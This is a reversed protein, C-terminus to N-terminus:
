STGRSLGLGQRDEKRAAARDADDFESREIELDLHGLYAIVAVRRREVSLSERLNVLAAKMRRMVQVSSGGFQRIEDFALALYDDWTPIPFVLRLAGSADHVRGVDFASGGLRLLLDEIQDLAQVATTPDNVAPSLARIAIDVLIRIAYKPDQEFTRSSALGVARLLSDREIETGGHVHLLTTNTVVTDGVAVDLVITADAREALAVLATTDLAAIARPPGHYAVRQHSAPLDRVAAATQTAASETKPDLPHFMTRIVARGRTGITQLVSGIQLDSVFQITRAFVVMSLVLLAIVIWASIVPVGGSGGRDTWTLAQLSYLFTAIFIGLAHFLRPDSALLMTLRPSYAAASFQILVFSVAFVIGTLAIMGSSVASLFAQGSAVSMAHEYPFYTTELRLIVAGGVLSVLIYILPITWRPMLESSESM